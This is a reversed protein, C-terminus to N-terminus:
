FMAALQIRHAVIHFNLYKMKTRAKTTQIINTTTTKLNENKAATTKTTTQM